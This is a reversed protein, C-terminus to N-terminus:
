KYKFVFGAAKPQTGLLVASMNIRSTINFEKQLYEKAEFQYNFTNIFTGDPGFVDFPKNKGLKDSLKRRSEPNEKYNQKKKDSRQQRADPNDEHYKKMRESKTKRAEPHQEYYKKILDGHEKGLNVNDEFRKKIIKGRERGAGPNNEHYKIMRESHELAVEPHEEYYKIMRESHELAVEPHEKHYKKVRESIQQRVQPHEEHYNKMAERLHHKAETHQEMYKKRAESNKQLAGPQKYYQKLRESHKKGAEPHEEHYKKWGVRMQQRDEETFVYGNTGEGGYTMNYGYGDLYHSNYELIYGIEKECLEVLTDATDIETLEFTDIMDYKILAQYLCTKGGKKAGNKHQKKRQELSKTLGIYHKGNPFKIKYIVGCPM